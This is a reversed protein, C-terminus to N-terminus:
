LKLPKQTPHRGLSNDPIHKSLQKEETRMGNIHANAKNCLLLFANEVGMEDIMSVLAKVEDIGMEIGDGEMGLESLAESLKKYGCCEEFHRMLGYFEIKVSKQGSIECISVIRKGNARLFNLLAKYFACLAGM